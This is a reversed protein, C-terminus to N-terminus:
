LTLAPSNLMCADDACPATSTLLGTTWGRGCAGPLPLSRRTARRPPKRPLGGHLVLTAGGVVAALPLQAFLKQLDAFVLQAPLPLLAFHRLSLRDCSTPHHPPLRAISGLVRPASGQESGLAQQATRAFRERAAPISPWCRPGSGMSGPATDPFRAPAPLITAPHLPVTRCCASTM